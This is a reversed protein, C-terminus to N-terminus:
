PASIAPRWGNQWGKGRIVPPKERFRIHRYALEFGSKRYNEQQAVVGDLGVVRGALRRCAERWIALGFGRGRYEEKVIYLGIFGFGGGYSVASITAVPVGDLEGVLYGGPNAAYFVGADYLGPNWGELRAWDLALPLEERRMTRIVYSQKM